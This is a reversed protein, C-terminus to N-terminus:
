NLGESVVKPITKNSNICDKLSGDFMKYHDILLSCIASKYLLNLDCDETPTSRTLSEREAISCAVVSPNADDDTEFRYMCYSEIWRGTHGEVPCSSEEASLPNAATLVLSAIWAKSKRSMPSSLNQDVPSIKSM